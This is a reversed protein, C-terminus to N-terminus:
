NMHNTLVLCLTSVLKTTTTLEEATVLTVIMPTLSSTFLKCENFMIVTAYKDVVFPIGDTYWSFSSNGSIANVDFSKIHFKPFPKHRKRCRRVCNVFNELFYISWHTEVLYQNPRAYNSVLISMTYTCFIIQYFWINAGAITVPFIHVTNFTPTSWQLLHRRNRRRGGRGSKQRITPWPSRLSRTNSLLLFLLM